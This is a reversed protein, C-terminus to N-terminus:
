TDMSLPVQSLLLVDTTAVILGIGAAGPTVGPDLQPGPVTVKVAVPPEAPCYRQYVTGVPPVAIAPCVQEVIGGGVLVVSM